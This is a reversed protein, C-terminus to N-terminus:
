HAPAARAARLRGLWARADDLLRPWASAWCCDHDHSPVVRVLTSSRDGMRALYAQTVALPVVEDREGAFHVQPVAEAARAFDAANLSGRLPADGHLATWAAHDLNAAVTIVSGVDSRDAALIAALAGGGSYGILHVTRTGALAKAQDVAESISAVVAPAYRHSTWWQQACRPDADAVYQCPRGLYLVKPASDAVALRLAIPREPTPDRSPQFRTEWAAGDGELYVVLDAAAGTLGNHYGALTFRSTPFERYTWGEAEALRAARRRGDALFDPTACSAALVALAFALFLFPGTGGPRAGSFVRGERAV